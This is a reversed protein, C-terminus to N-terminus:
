RHFRAAVFMDFIQEGSQGAGAILELANLLEGGRHAIHIDSVGGEANGRSLLEVKRWGPARADPLVTPRRQGIFDGAGCLM